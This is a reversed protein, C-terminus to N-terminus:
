RTESEIKQSALSGPGPVRRFSPVSLVGARLDNVREEAYSVDEPRGFVFFRRADLQRVIIAALVDPDAGFQELYAGDRELVDKDVHAVGYREQRHRVSNHMQSRIAGPLIVSVDVPIKAERLEQQLSACLSLLASKSANYPAHGARSTLTLTSSTHALHGSGLLDVDFM